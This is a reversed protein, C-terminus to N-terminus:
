PEGGQSRRSRRPLGPFLAPVRNRYRRYPEGLEDALDREEIPIAVFIYATMTAAFLLHGGTMTPTAWFAILFGLLLPHRILRYAFVERFGKEAQPKSRLFHTVQSLGFLDFHDIMFTAALVTLWGFAALVALALRAPTSGVSWVTGDIERWQWFLLVLAASSLLVYTSREIVAPVYRTWWRKFAPRAMVSHQLAFVSLLAVDVIIAQALKAEIARDVSRPVAIDTVFGVLYVFVALFALYSGVGYLLVGIRRLGTAQHRAPVASRRVPCQPNSM